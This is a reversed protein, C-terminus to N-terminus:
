VINRWYDLTDKLTADIPIEPKWGTLKSVKQLDCVLDKIDSARFRSSDTKVKIEKTSFSLLKSLIDSIKYSVGSGVNYAEGAEGKELLLAYVRVMDRVDTFDRKAELNGVKILPESVGKEAEAIQKAFSAVVFQPSQRPGIHNFPRIRVVPLGYSLYYQFGLYDQTIKSVAYPSVPRFPTEEDIPLEDERVRGYIEASSVILIKSDAINNERVAELVHLEAAINNQMVRSPDRFSDAPSTLAALHVVCDPLISSVVKMVQDRKSLDVQSLHINNRIASLNSLHTESLYTGVVEYKGQKLLYEALFSGAFGSIGTILVKKM